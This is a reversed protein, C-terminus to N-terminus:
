ALGARGQRPRNVAVALALAVVASIWLSVETWAWHADPGSTVFADVAMDIGQSLAFGVAFAFVGAAVRIWMRAAPALAVGLAIVAVVFTLFGAMFLPGEFPSKDLGGALGIAVAKATWLVAAAVAAVLAIRRSTM